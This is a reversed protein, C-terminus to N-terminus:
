TGARVSSWSAFTTQDLSEGNGCKSSASSTISYGFVAAICPSDIRARGLATQTKLSVVSHSRSGNCGVLDLLPARSV